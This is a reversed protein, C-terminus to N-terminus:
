ERYTVFKQEILKKGQYWIQFEWEGEVMEYAENLGYVDYSFVENREVKKNITYDSGTSVTGDPLHFPPHSLIRRLQVYGKTPINSLRYQYALLRDKKIPIRETQRIFTMVLNSMAKGTSTTSNEIINGGRVMSFIGHRIVRGSPLPNDEASNNSSSAKNSSSNDSYATIFLIGILLILQKM